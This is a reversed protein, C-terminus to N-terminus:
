VEYFAENKEASINYLNDFNNVINLIIPKNADLRDTFPLSSLLDSYLDLAFFRLM